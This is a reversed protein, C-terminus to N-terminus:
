QLHLQVMRSNIMTLLLKVSNSVRLTFTTSTAIVAECILFM